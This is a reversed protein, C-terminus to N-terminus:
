TNNEGYFYELGAKITHENKNKSEAKDIILGLLKAKGMTAAVAASSQPSEAALATQRAQELEEILDDVTINHRQRHSEKLEDIRVLVKSNKLLESARVHTVEAKYRDGYSQRYAESANGLEIYLLCFREQKPTLKM